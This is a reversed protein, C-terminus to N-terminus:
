FLFGLVRGTGNFLLYFLVSIIIMGFASNVHSRATEAKEKEKDKKKLQHYEITGTIIGLVGFLAFGICIASIIKGFLPLIEM